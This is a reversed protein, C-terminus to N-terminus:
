ERVEHNPKKTPDNHEKGDQGPNAMEYKLMKIFKYIGIAFVSGLGLGVWYIWHKADYLSIVVCPSRSRALNFSSGTYYMGVLEAVFIALRIKV